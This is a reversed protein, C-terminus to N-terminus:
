PERYGKVRCREGGTEEGGEKEEKWVTNTCNRRRSGESEKRTSWGCETKKRDMM